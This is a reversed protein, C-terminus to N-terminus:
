CQRTTDLNNGWSWQRAMTKRNSSNSQECLYERMVDRTVYITKLEMTGKTRNNSNYKAASETVFAWIGVKGDFTVNGQADHRPKAVATLFMVKGISNKNQITRVPDEEEPLLYYTRNRKTMDFWKEDIHIINEMKKFLPMANTTTTTTTTTEDVMSICFKLRKIKNEKSQFPKLSSTHRRLEGWTLRRQLTSYPIDLSRALARLTGRQNLPVQPVREDLNLERRKRGCMKRNNSFDVVENRAEQDMAKKWTKEVSRLSIGLLQAVNEKDAKVVPRDKGLAKLAIYSAFKSREPV